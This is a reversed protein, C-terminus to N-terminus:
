HFASNGQTFKSIERPNFMSPFVYSYHVYAYLKVVYLLPKTTKLYKLASNVTFFLFIYSMTNLLVSNQFYQAETKASPCNHLSGM